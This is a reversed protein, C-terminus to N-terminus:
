PLPARTVFPKGGLRKQIPAVAARAAEESRFPGARVKWFAGDKFTFAGYDMRRLTAVANDASERTNLAAVQILWQPGSPRSPPSAAPRSPAEVARTGTDGAAVAASCRDRQFELQNRLEVDDGAAGVGLNAWQCALARDRTDFAARAGWLAARARVPSAPYDRLLLRVQQVTGGPSGSAYDLQALQLLADDAWESQSYEVAVRQLYLRKDQATSAVVAITYLVEPYLADTPRTGALVRGAVARASDGMGEQALRVATVLRPDAQGTLPGALTVCSALAIVFRKM